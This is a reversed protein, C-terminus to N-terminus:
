RPRPRDSGPVPGEGVGPGPAGAGPRDDPAQPRDPGAAFGDFVNGGELPLQFADAVRTMYHCHCVWWLVDLAREQGFHAILDQYDRASSATGKALKRAFAFAARQAPPFGAWDGGALERTHEAVAQKDMGAVALLMHCHGM